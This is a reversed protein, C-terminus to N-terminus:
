LFEMLGTIIKVNKTRKISAMSRYARLPASTIIVVLLVIYVIYLITNARGSDKAKKDIVVKLKRMIYQLAVLGVVLIVMAQFMEAGFEKLVFGLREAKAALESQM